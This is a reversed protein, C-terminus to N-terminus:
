QPSCVKSYAILPANIVCQPPLLKFSGSIGKLFSNQLLHRSSVLAKSYMELGANLCHPIRLM